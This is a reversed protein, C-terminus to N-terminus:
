LKVFSSIDLSFSSDSSYVFSSSIKNNKIDDLTPVYIQANISKVITGSDYEQVIMNDEIYEKILKSM